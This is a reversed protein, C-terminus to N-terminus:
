LFSLWIMLFYYMPCLVEFQRKTLALLKKHMLFFTASQREGKECEKSGGREAAVHCGADFIKLHISAVEHTPIQLYSVRPVGLPTNFLLVITM